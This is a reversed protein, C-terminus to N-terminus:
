ILLLFFYSGVKFLSEEYQNKRMHKFSYSEESGIPISVWQDNLVAAEEESRESCKPKPYDKPLARYSPTCKRCQSFDIESLPVAFWVDEKHAEYDSRNALLRKFELALENGAVGNGSAQVFLDGAMELLETKSITDASFLELLKVFEVWNDRSSGVLVEKVTDFFRREASMSIHSDRGNSRSSHYTSMSRDQTNRVDTSAMNGGGESPGKGGRGSGRPVKKGSASTESQKRGLDGDQSESELDNLNHALTQKKGSRPDGKIAGTPGPAKADARARKKANAASLATEQGQLNSSSDGTNAWGQVPKLSPNILM